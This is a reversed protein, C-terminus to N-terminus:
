RGAGPFEMSATLSDAWSASAADPAYVAIVWAQGDATEFITIREGDRVSFGGTNLGSDFLDPGVGGGDCTSRSLRLTGSVGPLGAVTTDRRDDLRVGAAGLRDLYALVGATGGRVDTQTFPACPASVGLGLRTLQWHDSDGSSMAVRGASHNWEYGDSASPITLRLGMEPVLYTTGAIVKPEFNGGYPLNREYQGTLLVRRPPCPDSLPALSLVDDKITWAYSGTQGSTCDPGGDTQGFRLRDPATAEVTLTLAGGEPDVV